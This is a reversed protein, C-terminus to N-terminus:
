PLNCIYFRVCNNKIKAEKKTIMKLFILITAKSGKYLNSYDDVNSLKKNKNQTLHQVCKHIDQYYIFDHFDKTCEFLLGSSIKDKKKDM